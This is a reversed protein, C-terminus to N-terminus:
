AAPLEYRERWVGDSGMESRGCPAFGARLAVAISAANDAEVLLAVRGSGLERAYACMARTARTALGQGRAQEGLWYGVTPMGTRQLDLGISGVPVGREDEIALSLLLGQALGLACAIVFEGADRESYPQPIMPMFRAIAADADLM